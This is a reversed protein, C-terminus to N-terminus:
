GAAKVGYYFGLAAMMAAGLVEPIEIGVYPMALVGVTLLLAILAQTTAKDLLEKM